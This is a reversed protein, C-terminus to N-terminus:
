PMRVSANWLVIEAPISLYCGGTPFGTCFSDLFCSKIGQNERIKCFYGNEDSNEMRTSLTEWPVSTEPRFLPFRPSFHPKKPPPPKWSVLSGM